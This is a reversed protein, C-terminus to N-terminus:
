FMLLMMNQDLTDGLNAPLDDTCDGDLPDENDDDSIGIEGNDNPYTLNGYLVCLAHGATHPRSACNV